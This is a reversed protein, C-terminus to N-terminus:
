GNQMEKKIAPLKIIFTAGERLKSRVEISGQHAEIIGHCISLGLGIGQEKTSFFPDFIKELKEEPIGEGTDEFEIVVVKDGLKFTDTGRKGFETIEEVYSRINLKGGDPMAQVANVMINLFVQQLQGSDGMVELPSSNLHKTIAINQLM